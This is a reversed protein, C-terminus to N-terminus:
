FWKSTVGFTSRLQDVFDAAVVLTALTSTESMAVEFVTRTLIGPILVADITHVVGQTTVVEDLVTAVGIASGHAVTVTENVRSVTFADGDWTNVTMENALDVSFYVSPAVHALLLARAHVNWREDSLVADVLRANAESDLALFASSTPAFLTVGNWGSLEDVLGSIEFATALTGGGQLVLELITPIGIFRDIVHIVGNSAFLDTQVFRAFGDFDGGGVSVSIDGVTSVNVTQTVQNVFRVETGNLTLINERTARGRFVHGLLLNPLVTLRNELWYEVIRDPLEEIAANSPALLTFNQSEDSLGTELEAIVVLTAVGLDARSIIGFLDGLGTPAATPMESMTPRDTPAFTITPSPTDRPVTTPISTPVSPPSPDVANIVYQSYYFISPSPNSQVINVDLSMATSPEDLMMSFTVTTKDNRNTHTVGGVQM